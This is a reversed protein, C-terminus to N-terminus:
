LLLLLNKEIHLTKISSLQHHCCLTAWFNEHRLRAIIVGKRRQKLVELLIIIIGVM